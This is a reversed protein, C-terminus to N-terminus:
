VIKSLLSKWINLECAAYKKAAEFNHKISKIRDNYFDKPKINFVEDIDDNNIMIIGNTDFHDSIDPDGYYIPICGTLFCDIIKETFYGPISANEIAFSCYYDKMGYIKENLPNYGYGFTDIKDHYKNIIRHRLNHGITFNKKSAIISFDKSKNYIKWRTPCIWTGGFPVIVANPLKGVEKDHTIIYDYNNYNNNIFDYWNPNISRPEVLWAIKIHSIQSAFNVMPLCQDTFVVINCEAPTYRNWEFPIDNYYKSSTKDNFFATDYLGIKPKM